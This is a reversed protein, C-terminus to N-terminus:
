FYIKKVCMPALLFEQMPGQRGTGYSTGMMPDYSTGMYPSHGRKQGVYQQGSPALRSGGKGWVQVGAPLSSLPSLLAHCLSAAVRCGKICVGRSAQVQSSM